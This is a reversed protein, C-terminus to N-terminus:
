NKIPDVEDDSGLNVPYDVKDLSKGDDDVFVLKDELIQKELVNIKDVIPTSSQGEELSFINDKNSSSEKNYGSTSAKNTGVFPTTKPSNSTGDTSQKVNLRYQNKPKVFFTINKTDDINVGSKKKKVEIFGKDDAGLTQGKGKDRQNVVRILAVKPPITEKTYGNRELNPVVMVIKTAMLSLGDSTYTVLPVDHFKVWVLVHSLEEKLLSVSPLWKNLFILIKHIMWAGNRLVSEVGGISAFKIAYSSPSENVPDNGGKKGGNKNASGNHILTSSNVGVNVGSRNLTPMEKTVNPTGSPVAEVRVNAETSSNASLHKVLYVREDTKIRITADLCNSVIPVNAITSLDVGIVDLGHDVLASVLKANWQRPAQKLGYLSKNLKCVKNENNGCCGLPLCFYIDESLDGYLFANNVDLQFLPWHNQVAVNFVFRVITM